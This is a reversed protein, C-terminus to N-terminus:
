RTQNKMPYGMDPLLSVKWRARCMMFLIKLGDPLETYPEKTRYRLMVPATLKAKVIGQNSYIVEIDKGTESSAEYQGTLKNVTAIDTECSLIGTM